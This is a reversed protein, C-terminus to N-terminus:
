ACTIRGCVGWFAFLGSNLDFEDGERADELGVLLRDAHRMVPVFAIRWAELESGRGRRKEDVPGNLRGCRKSICSEISYWEGSVHM